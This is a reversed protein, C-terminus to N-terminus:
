VPTRWQPHGPTTGRALAEHRAQLTALRGAHCDAAAKPRATGPPDDMRMIKVGAGLTGPPRRAPARRLRGKAHRCARIGEFVTAAHTVALAHPHIRADERAILKGNRIMFRAQWAM